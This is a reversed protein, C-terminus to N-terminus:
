NEGLRRRAQRLVKDFHCELARNVKPCNAIVAEAWDLYEVRRQRSWDAPPSFAVDSVNSIKDGIKILAGGPSLRSAHEIQLRKRIAKSLSKDDTVERVFGCIRAGFSQELEEPTTDTDELTDHLLAAALIEADGM